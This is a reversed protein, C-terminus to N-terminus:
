RQSNGTARRNSSLMGRCLFFAKRFTPFSQSLLNHSLKPERLKTNQAKMDEPIHTQTTPLAKMQFPWSTGSCSIGSSSRVLKERFMPFWETVFLTTDLFVPIRFKKNNPLGWAGDLWYNLGGTSFRQWDDDITLLTQACGHYRKTLLLDCILM